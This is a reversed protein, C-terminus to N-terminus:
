PTKVFGNWFGRATSLAAYNTMPQGLPLGAMLGPGGRLKYEGKM